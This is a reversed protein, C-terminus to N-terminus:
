DELPEPAPIQIRERMAKFLSTIEEHRLALRSIDRLVREDVEDIDELIIAVVRAERDLIDNLDEIEAVLKNFEEELKERELGTLRGLRMDVIAQAQASSLSFASILGSKAQDTDPAARIIRIVEDIEGIARAVM